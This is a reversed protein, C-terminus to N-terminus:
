INFWNESASLVPVGVYDHEEFLILLLLIRSDRRLMFVEMCLSYDFCLENDDYLYSSHMTGEFSRRFYTAEGQNLGMEM